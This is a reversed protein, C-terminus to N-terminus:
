SFLQTSTSAKVLKKQFFFYLILQIFLVMFSVGMAALTIEYIHKVSSAALFRNVMFSATICGCVTPFFFVLKIQRRILKKLDKEKLGLYVAKKYSEQDKMITGTIKLGMIMIAFVFSIISIFFILLLYVAGAEIQLEIQTQRAFPYFDWQRAAYLENGEYPIFVDQYDTLKEKIAQEQYSDFIIGGSLAVIEELLREQFERSNKSNSGNFLYYNMKFEMDLSDSIEQFTKDSVVAFSDIQAGDDLVSEKSILGSKTLSFDKQATPNYFIGEEDWCTQFMSDGSDQFYVYSHSAISLDLGSLENFQSVNVAFEAAWENKKNGKYQHKRGILLLDLSKWDKLSINSEKALSRIKSEDLSKQASGLLVAYDYPDEQIQYYLELFSTGNFCISFITLIILLSSVFLSLTYQSGKQKVLNFFLLNTRYLGPFFRKAASGVSTIAATFTYIGILSVGLFFISFQKLGAIVATLNFLALGAFISIFGIMGFLPHSAKVEECEGSAHLIKIIDLGKLQITNKLRLIIWLFIWLGGAIMLGKFGTVFSHETYVLFMTLLRWIGFSLPVSLVLGLLGSILFIIDLQKNQIKEVAKPPLGLSLFVGIDGMQSQMYVANAYLLFVIAAIMTIGYMGLAILYTSGDTMLVGTIVPSFLLIGYAGIMSMVFCVSLGLILYRSKNQCVLKKTIENIKM